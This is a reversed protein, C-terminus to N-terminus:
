RAGGLIAARLAEAQHRQHVDNANVAMSHEGLDVGCSCELGYGHQGYSRWAAHSALVGVVEEVDLAAALVTRADQYEEADPARDDDRPGGWVAGYIAAEARVVAATVEGQVREADPAPATM